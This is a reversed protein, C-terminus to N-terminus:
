ERFENKNASSNKKKQYERVYKKKYEKNAEYWKKYQESIREAHKKNYRKPAEKKEIEACKDCRKHHPSRVKFTEGCDSCIKEPQLYTKM